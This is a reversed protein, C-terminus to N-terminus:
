TLKLFSTVESLDQTRKMPPLSKWIKKGYPKSLLRPDCIILVGLDTEDRILRGAGQKLSIVAEPVQYDMFPNGGQSRLYNIRGATVPDDPVSFPLKDIIVLVLGQGRVDVGEWFSHSGLLVAHKLTKFRNLLEFKSGDGQLLLPIEVGRETLCKALQERATRMAALSTFLMMCRGNSAIIPELSEEVVRKVYSAHSPEPMNKPVYLLSNQPYDFPSNWSLFEAEELGLQQTFYSADGSVSLTASTFVWSRKIDSVVSRFADSVNIPTLHMRVSQINADFWRIVSYDENKSWTSLFSDVELLRERCRQLEHNVTEISGIADTLEVGISSLSSAAELANVFRGQDRLDFRGKVGDFSLRLDRVGKEFRDIMEDIAAV